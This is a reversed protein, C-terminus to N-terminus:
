AEVKFVALFYCTDTMTAELSSNQLSHLSLILQMVQHYYWTLLTTVQLMCPCYIVERRNPLSLVQTDPQLALDLLVSKKSPYFLLFIQGSLFMNHICLFCLGTALIQIHQKLEFNIFIKAMGNLGRGHCSTVRDSDSQFSSDSIFAAAAHLAEFLFAQQM